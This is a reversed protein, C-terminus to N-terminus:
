FYVEDDALKTIVAIDAGITGSGVYNLQINVVGRAVRRATGSLYANKGAALSSDFPMAATEALTRNEVRVFMSQVKSLEFPTQFEAGGLFNTSTPDNTRVPGYFTGNLPRTLQRVNALYYTPNNKFDENCQKFREAASATRSVNRLQIRYTAQLNRPGTDLRNIAIEGDPLLCYQNDAEVPCHNELTVGGETLVLSKLVMEDGTIEIPEPATAPDRAPVTVQATVPPLLTGGPRDRLGDSVSAITRIGGVRSAIAKTRTKWFECISSGGTVPPLGQLDSCDRMILRGERDMLCPSKPNAGPVIAFDLLKVVGLNGVQRPDELDIGAWLTLHSGANLEPHNPEARGDGLEGVNKEYLMEVWSGRFPEVCGTGLAAGTLGLFLGGRV